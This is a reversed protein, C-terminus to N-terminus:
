LALSAKEGVGGARIPLQDLIFNTMIVKTESQLRVRVSRALTFPTSMKCFSISPLIKEIWKGAPNRETVTSRGLVRTRPGGESANEKVGERAVFMSRRRPM